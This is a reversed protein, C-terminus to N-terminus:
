QRMMLLNPRCHWHSSAPLAPTLLGATDASQPRCHQRGPAPLTPTDLGAAGPHHPRCHRDQTVAEPQFGEQGEEKDLM